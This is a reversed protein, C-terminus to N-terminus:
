AAIRWTDNACEPCPNRHWQQDMATGGAGVRTAGDEGDLYNGGDFAAVIPTLMVNM